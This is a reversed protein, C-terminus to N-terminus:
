RYVSAPLGFIILSNSAPLLTALQAGPGIPSSRSTGAALQLPGGIILYRLFWQAIYNMMITTVVEHAGVTAKLVGAVGAWLSGAVAGGVLVMPLLVIEPLTRFEIGIATCAISGALLQGEAGINFLGARFPLAVAVGTTILPIAFVIANSIQLAPNEGQTCGIGLGGCALAAYASFPNEGTAAVILAGVVFAFVVSGIPM